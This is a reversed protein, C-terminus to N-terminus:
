KRFFPLSPIHIGMLASGAGRDIRTGTQQSGQEEVSMMGWAGSHSEEVASHLVHYKANPFASVQKM